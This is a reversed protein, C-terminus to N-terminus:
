KDYLIALITVKYFLTYKLTQRFKNLIKIPCYRIMVYFLLPM